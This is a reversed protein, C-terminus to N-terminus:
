VRSIERLSTSIKQRLAASDNKGGLNTTELTREFVEEESASEEEPGLDSIQQIQTSTAGILIRRDLCRILYLGRGPGLTQFAMVEIPKTSGKAKKLFNMSKSSVKRFALVCLGFAGLAAGLALMSKLLLPLLGKDM